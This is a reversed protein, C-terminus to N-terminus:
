QDGGPRHPTRADHRRGAAHQGVSTKESERDAQRRGEERAAALARALQRARRRRAAVLTWGVLALLTVLALQPWPLAWVSVRAVDAVPPPDLAQEGVAAPTVTGTATLRFLPPVGTM